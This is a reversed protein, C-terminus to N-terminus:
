STFYPKIKRWGIRWNAVKREEEEENSDSESVNELDDEDSSEEAVTSERLIDDEDKTEDESACNELLLEPLEEVLTSHDDLDEEVNKPFRAEFDFHALGFDIVTARVRREDLAVCVNEDRLDLHAVGAAHM